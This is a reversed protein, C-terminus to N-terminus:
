QKRIKGDRFVRMGPKMAGRRKGGDMISSLIDKQKKFRHEATAAIHFFSERIWSLLPKDIRFTLVLNNHM